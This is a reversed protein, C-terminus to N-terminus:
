NWQPDLRHLKSIQKASFKKGSRYARRQEYLWKGLWVGNVVYSQPININGNKEYYKKLLAFKEEWADRKEWVMKLEELKREREASLKGARKEERQRDLWKGLSVGNETKYATTVNLHGNKEYYKKAEAYTKEWLLEYRSDWEMGLDDLRDAIEKPLKDKKGRVTRLWEGLLVGDETKYRVPVKIDGHKAHYENLYSMNKEFLYGHKNWIMGIGDLRLIQEETLKGVGSEGARKQRLNVIWAGLAYGTETVYEVKVDLDNHERYYKEAEAFGREFALEFRNEWVMGIEDLLKIKEETLIGSARGARVNRQTQIWSGLSLGTETKYRKAVNLNKNKDYYKKAEEYMLRWSAALTNKLAEFLKRCERVEDYIKFRENVIEKGEGTLRYYNVITEMERQVTGISYLNEFNNVIDFIVPSKGETVSLARGIQQKYVIPSVTPRFLIVGSVNEVHVGENLMDICYLLKLHESDDKKFKGFEKGAEPDKSYVRYVHPASDVDAFMEKARRSMEALHREDSCFVIYKGTRDEIHKAFIEKLGEAKELARRLAELYGEAASRVAASKANNVRREWRSLDRKCSYLATVYVPSPLIGKVIAEGLTMESAVNGEFLEDSMDRRNDLYRVSTASLGLLKAKPLHALLRAVGKGWAAAGSRHFEDLVIYDAKIETLEEESLQMLKAYTFFAINAPAEGGTAKKLNELQTEYIYESPSLWCIKEKEHEWALCFGIFSKGTGTPHVIAAKGNEELMRVAKEYARKNHPYMEYQM